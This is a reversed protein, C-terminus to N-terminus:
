LGNKVGGGHSEKWIVCRVTSSMAEKLDELLKETGMSCLGVGPQSRQIDRLKLKSVRAMKRIVIGKGKDLM